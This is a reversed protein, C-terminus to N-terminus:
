PPAFPSTSFGRSHKVLQWIGAWGLKFLAIPFDNTERGGRMGGTSILLAPFCQAVCSFGFCQHIQRPEMFIVYAYVFLSWHQGDDRRWASWFVCFINNKWEESQLKYRLVGGVTRVFFFVWILLFFFLRNEVCWCGPINRLHHIWITRFDFIM